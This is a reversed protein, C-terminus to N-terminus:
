MPMNKLKELLIEAYETVLREYKQRKTTHLPDKHAAMHYDEHLYGKLVYLTEQIVLITPLIEELYKARLSHNKHYKKELKNRMDRTAQLGQVARKRSMDIHRSVQLVQHSFPLPGVRHLTMNPFVHETFEPIKEAITRMMPKGSDTLLLFSLLMILLMTLIAIAFSINGLEQTKYFVLLGGGVALFISNQIDAGLNRQSPKEKEEHKDQTLATLAGSGLVVGLLINLNFFYSVFGSKITELLLLLLYTVFAFQFFERVVVHITARVNNM